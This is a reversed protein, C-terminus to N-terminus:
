MVDETILLYLELSCNKGSVVYSVFLTATVLWLCDLIGGGQGWVLYVNQGITESNM